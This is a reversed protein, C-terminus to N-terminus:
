SKMFFELKKVFGRASSLLEYDLFDDPLEKGFEEEIAVIFQIFMMSDSIYDSIAFDDLEDEFIVVGLNEKLTKILIQYANHKM